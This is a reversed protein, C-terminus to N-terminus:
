GFTERHLATKGAVNQARVTCTVVKVVKETRRGKYICTNCM